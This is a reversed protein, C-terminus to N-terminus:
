ENSQNIEKTLRVHIENNFEYIEFRDFKSKFTELHLKLSKWAYHCFISTKYSVKAQINQKLRDFEKVVRNVYSAEYSTVKIDRINSKNLMVEAPIM